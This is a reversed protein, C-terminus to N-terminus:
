VLRYGNKKGVLELSFGAMLFHLHSKDPAQSGLM